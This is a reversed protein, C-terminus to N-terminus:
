LGGNQICGHVPNCAPHEVLCSLCYSPDVRTKIRFELIDGNIPETWIEAGHDLWRHYFFSHDKGYVNIYNQTKQTNSVPVRCPKDNLYISDSLPAEFKKPIPYQKPGMLTPIWCKYPVLNADRKVGNEALVVVLEENDLRWPYQNNYQYDKTNKYNM